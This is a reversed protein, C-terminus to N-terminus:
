CNACFNKMDRNGANLAESPFLQKAISNTDARTFLTLIMANSLLFKASWVYTKINSDQPGLLSSRHKTRNRLRFKVDEAVAGKKERRGGEKWSKVGNGRGSLRDVIHIIIRTRRKM